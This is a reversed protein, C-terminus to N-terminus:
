LRNVKLVESIERPLSRKSRNKMQEAQPDQSTNAVEILTSNGEEYQSGFYNKSRLSVENSDDM